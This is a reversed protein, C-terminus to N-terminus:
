TPIKGLSGASGNRRRKTKNRVSTPPRVGIQIEGNKLGNGACRSLFRHLNRMGLDFINGLPKTNDVTSMAVVSADVNESLGKHDTANIAIRTDGTASIMVFHEEGAESPESMETHELTATMSASALKIVEGVFSIRLRENQSPPGSWMSVKGSAYINHNQVREKCDPPRKREALRPEMRAALSSQRTAGPVATVINEQKWPKARRTVPLKLLLNICEPKGLVHEKGIISRTIAVACATNMNGPSM